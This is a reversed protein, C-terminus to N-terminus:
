YSRLKRNLRRRALHVAPKILAARVVSKMLDNDAILRAASRGYRYYNRVFKQGSATSALVEDRYQRLILVAPDDYNGMAATAVFCAEATKKEIAPPSYNPDLRQLEAVAEDMKMRLEAEYGPALSHLAPANNNYPDRYSVGEVNDKCIHVINELTVVNLPDWTRVEELAELLLGMKSLYDAWQGDLAIYETLHNRAMSYLTTAFRNTESVAEATVAPKEHESASGIANRFAVLMERTRINALTSQWGAAKGKGLWAESLAPEIELVRNYYDLAEQNNGAAEATRAMGLLNPIKSRDDNM